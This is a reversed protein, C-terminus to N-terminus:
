SIILNSNIYKGFILPIPFEKQGGNETECEPLM